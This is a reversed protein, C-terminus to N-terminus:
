RKNGANMAFADFDAQTAERTYGNADKERENFIDLVMGVTLRDLDEISLGLEICRM